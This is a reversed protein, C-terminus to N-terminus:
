AAAEDIVGALWRAAGDLVAVAAESPGHAAFFGRQVKAHLKTVPASSRLTRALVVADVPLGKEHLMEFLLWRAAEGIDPPAAAIADLWVGVTREREPARRWGDDDVHPRALDLVTRHRGTVPDLTSGDVYPDALDVGRALLDERVKFRAHDVDHFFMEAPSCWRGDAWVPEDVVGIPHVPWARGRILEDISLPERTPVAVVHPWLAVLHDLEGAAKPVYESRGISPRALVEDAAGEIASRYMAEDILWRRPVAIPGSM